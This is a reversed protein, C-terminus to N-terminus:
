IALWLLFLSGGALYYSTKDKLAFLIPDDEVTGRQVLLWLRSIWFLLLICLLWIVEPQRYLAVVEPSNIYLALVLVAMFGSSTGLRALIDFDEVHYGRGMASKRQQRKIVQLESCRKVLAMSFFLFLSFALLWFSPAIGVATGGAFIRTCFLGALVLIDVIAEQKLWFSYLTTIAYYLMLALSFTLPLLLSLLLSSLLLLPALKIGNMIALDGSALPRNKKSPHCRDAQLDLLDNILYTSSAALGFAVFAIVGQGLLSLDTIKHGLLLPIFILINKIWQNLRFARVLTAIPDPRDEFRRVVPCVKEAREAVGSDPNVLVAQRAETWVAVDVQSNGVYDFGKTGFREALQRGKERGSLNTTGDSAIVQDIIGLHTAVKRAHRKDAATALVLFRGREKEARLYHLFPQYYPLGAVDLEARKAIEQKFSAKGRKLWGPFRLLTAPNRKLVALISELMLDTRVLTGDLDVCLPIVGKPPVSSSDRVTRDNVNLAGCVLYTVSTCASGFMIDKPCFTLPLVKTAGGGVEQILEHKQNKM